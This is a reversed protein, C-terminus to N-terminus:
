LRNGRLFDGIEMRKKGELQLVEIALWGEATQFYLFSKGDTRFQGPQDSEQFEIVKSKFIKCSLGNITTWAAPYPSLGRIFNHIETAPKQWDIECTERFIKPASRIEAPEQQPEQPYNGAEIARVTQVVLKAGKAMLREYLTGADDDPHIQEKEQYIIKGTDIDKEIFFTTVGTETEGNIIAWNIPAAGRYQPLLSSHLNFTGKSPMSWVVEPLMRFAVVVQLDAQYSRLEELFEPNKLKEPQLVPIGQAQAYLKVPSATQKQGRGAPKDPVTIVAVVNSNSEVLSQLSPVAFEPTGMFIIRLPTSM